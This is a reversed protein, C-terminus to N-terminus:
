VAPAVPFRSPLDVRDGIEEEEEEEEEESGEEGPITKSESKEALSAAPRPMACGRKPM